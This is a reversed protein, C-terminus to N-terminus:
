PTTLRTFLKVSSCHIWFSPMNKIIIDTAHLFLKVNQADPLHLSLTHTHSASTFLHHRPKLFHVEHPSWLYHCKDAGLQVPWKVRMESQGISYRCASMSLFTCCFFRRAKDCTWGWVSFENRSCVSVLEKKKMCEMLVIFLHQAQTRSYTFTKQITVLLQDRLSENIIRVHLWLSLHSQFIVDFWKHLSFIGVSCLLLDGSPFFGMRKRWVFPKKIIINFDCYSCYWLLGM